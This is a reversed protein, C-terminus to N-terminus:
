KTGARLNIATNLTLGSCYINGTACKGDTEPLGTTYSLGITVASAKDNGGRAGSTRVVSFNSVKMKDLNIPGSTIIKTLKASTTDEDCNLFGPSYSLTTRLLDTGYLKYDILQKNTDDMICIRSSPSGTASPIVLEGFRLERTMTDVINRGNEQNQRVQNSFVYFRLTGIVVVMAIALMSGMITIAFILEVFTFGSQHKRLIKM